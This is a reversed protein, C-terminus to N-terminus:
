GRVYEWKNYRKAIKGIRQLENVVRLLVLRPVTPWDRLLEEMGARKNVSFYTWLCTLLGADSYTGMDGCDHLSPDCNTTAIGTTTKTTTPIPTTM